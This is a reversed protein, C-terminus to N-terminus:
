FYFYLFLRSIIMIRIQETEHFTGGEPIRRRMVTILVLTESSRIAEMMLNFLFLYSPIVNASVLLQLVNWFIIERIRKVKM